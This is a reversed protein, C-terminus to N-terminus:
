ANTVATTPPASSVIPECPESWSMTWRMSEHRESDSPRLAIIPEATAIPTCNASNESTPASSKARLRPADTAESCRVPSWSKPSNM